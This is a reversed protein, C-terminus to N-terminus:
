AAPEPTIEFEGDIGQEPDAAPTDDVGNYAIADSWGCDGSTFAVRLWVPTLSGWKTAPDDDVGGMVRVYLDAGHAKVDVIQDVYADRGTDDTLRAHERTFSSLYYGTKKLLAQPDVGTWEGDRVDHGDGDPNREVVLRSHGFKTDCEVNFTGAQPLIADCRRSIPSSWKDPTPKVIRWGSDTKTMKLDMDRGGATLTGEATSGVAPLVKLTHEVAGEKYAKPELLRGAPKGDLTLKFAAKLDGEEILKVYQEAVQRPDDGKAADGADANQPQGCAALTLAMATAATMALIRRINTRM